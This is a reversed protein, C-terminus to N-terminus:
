LCRRREVHIDGELVEQLVLETMIVEEAKIQSHTKCFITNQNPFKKKDVSSYMM